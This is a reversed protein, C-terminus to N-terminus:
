IIFHFSFFQHNGETNLTISLIVVSIKRVLIFHTIGIHATKCKGQKKGRDFFTIFFSIRLICTIVGMVQVFNDRVFWYDLYVVLM